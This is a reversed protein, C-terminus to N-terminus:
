RQLGWQLSIILCCDSNQMCRNEDNSETTKDSLCSVQGELLEPIEMLRAKLGAINKFNNFDKFIMNVKFVSGNKLRYKGTLRKEIRGVFESQDNFKINMNKNKDVKILFSESGEKMLSVTSAERESTGDYNVTFSTDNHYLTFYYQRDKNALNHKPMVLGGGLEDEKRRLRQRDKFSETINLINNSSILDGAKQVGPSLKPLGKYGQSIRQNSFMSVGKKNLEM